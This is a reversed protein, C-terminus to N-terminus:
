KSREKARYKKRIEFARSRAAKKEEAVRRKERMQAIRELRNTYDTWLIDIRRKTEVELVYYHDVTTAVGLLSNTTAGYSEGGSNPYTNVPEWKVSGAMASFVAFSLFAFLQTKMM